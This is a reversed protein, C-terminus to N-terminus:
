RVSRSAAHGRPQFDVRKASEALSASLVSLANTGLDIAYLVGAQDSVFLRNLGVPDAVGFNPAALGSAVTEFGVALRREHIRPGIPDDVPTSGGLGTPSSGLCGRATETEASPLGFGRSGHRCTEPPRLRHQPRRWSSGAPSPACSTWSRM